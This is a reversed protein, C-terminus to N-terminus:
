KKGVNNKEARTKSEKGKKLKPRQNGFLRNEIDKAAAINPKPTRLFRIILYIIISAVALAIIGLYLELYNFSSLVFNPKQMVLVHVPYTIEAGNSTINLNLAFTGTSNGTIIEFTKNIEEGPAALATQTSNLLRLASASNLNLTVVQPASGSYLASVSLNGASDIYFTPILISIM